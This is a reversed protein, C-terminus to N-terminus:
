RSALPALLPQLVTFAHDNWEGTDGDNNTGRVGITHSGTALYPLTTTGANASGYGGCAFPAASDVRCEYEYPGTGTTYPSYWSFTPTHDYTTEIVEGTFWTAPAPNDERFVVSEISMNYASDHARVAMTHWGEGVPKSTYPSTCPKPTAGDVSCTVTAPESVTFTFTPTQDSTSQEFTPGGTIAIIPATKDPAPPPAPPSPVAEAITFTRTAPSADTNGEQDTARVSFTHQAYVLTALTKPSSCAGWAGGDVKCTFTSGSESSSFTFTPTKDTTTGGAAPGSSITTNPATTDGPLDNCDDGFCTAAAPSAGAGATLAAAALALLCTRRATIHM